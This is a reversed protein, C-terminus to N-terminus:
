FLFLLAISLTFILLLEMIKVVPFPCFFKKFFETSRLPAVITTIIVPNCMLRASKVTDCLLCANKVLNCMLCASKVAHLQWYISVTETLFTLLRYKVMNSRKIRLISLTSTRRRSGEDENGGGLFESALLLLYAAPCMFERVPKWVLLSAQTSPWALATHRGAEFAWLFGCVQWREKLLSPRQAVDWVWHIFQTHAALKWLKELSFDTEPKGLSCRNRGRRLTLKILLGCQGKVYCVSGM